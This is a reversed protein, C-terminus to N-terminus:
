HCGQTRKLEAPRKCSFRCYQWARSEREKGERTEGGKEREGERGQSAKNQGPPTQWFNHCRALRTIVPKERERERERRKERGLKLGLICKGLELKVYVASGNKKESNLEQKRGRREEKKVRNYYSAM